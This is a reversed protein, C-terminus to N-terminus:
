GRWGFASLCNCKGSENKEAIEGLLGAVSSRKNQIDNWGNM